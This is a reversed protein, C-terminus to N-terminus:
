IAKHCILATVRFLSGRRFRQQFRGPSLVIRGPPEFYEETGRGADALGKFHQLASMGPPLGADIDHDAHDLGM